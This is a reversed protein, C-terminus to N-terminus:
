ENYTELEWRYLSKGLKSAYGHALAMLEAYNSFNVDSMRTIGLRAAGIKELEKKNLPADLFEMYEEDFFPALRKLVLNVAFLAFGEKKLLDKTCKACDFIVKQVDDTSTRGCRFFVSNKLLRCIKDVILLSIRSNKIKAYNSATLVFSTKVVFRLYEDEIHVRNKSTKEKCM